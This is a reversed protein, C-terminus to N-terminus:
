LLHLSSDESFQDTIERHEYSHNNQSSTLWIDKTMNPDISKNMIHKYPETDTSFLVSTNYKMHTHIYTNYEGTEYINSM